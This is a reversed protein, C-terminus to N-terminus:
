RTGPWVASYVCWAVRENRRAEMTIGCGRSGPEGDLLAWRLLLPLLVSPDDLCRAGDVHVEQLDRLIM